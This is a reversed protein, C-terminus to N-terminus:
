RLGGGAHSDEQTIEIGAGPNQRTWGEIDGVEFDFLPRTITSLCESGGLGIPEDVGNTIYIRELKAGSECTGITPTHKGALIEETAVPVWEWERNTSLGELKM